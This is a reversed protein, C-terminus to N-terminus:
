FRFSRCRITSSPIWAASMPRGPAPGRARSATSPSALSITSLSRGIEALQAARVTLASMSGITSIECAVPSRNSTPAKRPLEGIRFYASPQCDLMSRRAVSSATVKATESPRSTMYTVSSVVRDWGSVSRSSYVVAISHPAPRMQRASVTPWAVGCPTRWSTRKTLSSTFSVPSSTFTSQCPCRSRPSPKAFQRAAISSPTSRTCAVASPMPSLHPLASISRSRTLM